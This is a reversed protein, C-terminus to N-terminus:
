LKKCGGAEETCVLSYKKIGASKERNEEKERRVPLWGFSRWILSERETKSTQKPTIKQLKIISPLLNIVIKINM